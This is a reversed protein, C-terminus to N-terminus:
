SSATCHPSLHCVGASSGGYAVADQSLGQKHLDDFGSLKFARRLVFTNGGRVWLLNFQALTQALHQSRGFYQRLDVELADFGLKCLHDMELAVGKELALKEYGDIVATTAVWGSAVRQCTTQSWNFV